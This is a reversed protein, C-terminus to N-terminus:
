GFPPGLPPATRVANRAKISASRVDSGSNLQHSLGKGSRCAAVVPAWSVLSVDSVIWATAPSGVSPLIKRLPYMTM